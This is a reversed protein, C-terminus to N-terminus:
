RTPYKGGKKDGRLELYADVSDVTYLGSNESMRTIFGQEALARVRRNSVGGLVKAAEATTYYLRSLLIKYCEGQSLTINGNSTSWPRGSAEDLYHYGADVNHKYRRLVTPSHLEFSIAKEGVEYDKIRAKIGLALEKDKSVKTMMELMGAEPYGTASIIEAFSILKSM